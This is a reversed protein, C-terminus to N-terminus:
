WNAELKQFDAHHIIENVQQNILEDIRQVAAMVEGKDFRGAHHDINYLVAALGSVFRDEASIAEVNEVATLDDKIMPAPAASRRSVELRMSSLFRDVYTAAATETKEATMTASM